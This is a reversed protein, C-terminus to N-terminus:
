AAEQSRTHRRGVWSLLMLGPVLLLLTSPTPVPNPNIDPREAYDVSLDEILFSGATSTLELRSKFAGTTGDFIEIANNFIDSVYFDTGDYAIGTSEYATTIFDATLLNGDLDYIDYAFGADERNAILKGDFYEMGDMNNSANSLTITKVNNGTTPDIQFARNTGSYDSTWFYQGDWAITSMSANQTLISDFTVGTNLDMKYIRPDGVVTYYITDGIVVIGRGNGSPQGTWRQVEVGTTGDIIHIPNNGSSASDGYILGASATSLSGLSFLAGAVAVCTWKLWKPM